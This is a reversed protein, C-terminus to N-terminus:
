KTGGHSVQTTLTVQPSGSGIAAATVKFTLKGKTLGSIKLV